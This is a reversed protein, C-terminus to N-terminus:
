PANSFSYIDSNGFTSKTGCSTPPDPKPNPTTGLQLNERYTDVAPCDQANRTDNWVAAGFTNTAVAYVYDGLFPARRPGVYSIDVHPCTLRSSPRAVSTSVQGIDNRDDLLNRPSDRFVVPLRPM